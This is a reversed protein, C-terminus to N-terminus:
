VEEWNNPSPKGTSLQTNGTGLKWEIFKQIYHVSVAQKIPIRIARNDPLVFIYAVKWAYPMEGKYKYLTASYKQKLALLELKTM